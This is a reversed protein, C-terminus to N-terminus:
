RGLTEFGQRQLLQALLLSAADDLATRGGICLVLRKDHRVPELASSAVLHPQNASISVVTESPEGEDATEEQDSLDDVLAEVSAKMEILKDGDLMGRSYDSQALELGKLAVEDYYAGLTREEKM